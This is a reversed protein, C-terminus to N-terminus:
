RWTVLPCTSWPRDELEDRRFSTFNIGTRDIRGSDLSCSMQIQGQANLHRVFAQHFVYNGDPEPTFGIAGDCYQGGTGNHPEWAYVVRLFTLQGARVRVDVPYHDLALLIQEANQESLM